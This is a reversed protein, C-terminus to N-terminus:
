DFCNIILDKKANLKYRAIYQLINLSPDKKYINRALTEFKDTEGNKKYIKAVEILFENAKEHNPYKREFDL